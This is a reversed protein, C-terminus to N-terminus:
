YRSIFHMLQKVMADMVKCDLDEKRLKVRLETVMELLDIGDQTCIDPLRHIDEDLEMVKKNLADKWLRLEKSDGDAVKSKLALMREINSIDNDIDSIHPVVTYYTAM